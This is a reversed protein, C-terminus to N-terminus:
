HNKLMSRFLLVSIATAVASVSAVTPTSVPLKNTRRRLCVNWVHSSWYVLFLGSNKVRCAFFSSLVPSIFHNPNTNLYDLPLSRLIDINKSWQRRSLPLLVNPHSNFCRTIVIGDGELYSFYIITSNMQLYGQTFDVVFLSTHSRPTIHCIICYWRSIRYKLPFSRQKILIMLGFIVSWLKSYYFACDHMLM